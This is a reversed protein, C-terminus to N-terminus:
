LHFDAAQIRWLNGSCPFQFIDWRIRSNTNSAGDILLEQSTAGSGNVTIEGGSTNTTNVGPMYNVFTRPNRIGGSFFPLTTLMQTRLNAHGTQSSTTELVEGQGTVTVTQQTDGVELKLDLEQRSAIRIEINSSNLKKFGPHEVTVEYIGVPLNPFVYVGAESSKTESQLGSTANTAVM